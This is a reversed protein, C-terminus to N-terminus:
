VNNYQINKIENKILTWVPLSLRYAIEPSRLNYSPHFVSIYRYTKNNLTITSFDAKMYSTLSGKIPEGLLQELATKGLTVILKPQLIEIESLLRSRCAALEDPLPKRNLPPRCMVSNTVFIQQRTVGVYNLISDLKKGAKGVFPIGQLDEQEGSAEGILMLPIKADGNGWVIRTRNKALRCGTCDKWENKLSELCNILM